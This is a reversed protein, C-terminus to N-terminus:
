RSREGASSRMGGVWGRPEMVGLCGLRRAAVVCSEPPGSLQRTRVAVCPRAATPVYRGECNASGEAVDRDVGFPLAFTAEGERGYAGRPGWGSEGSGRRM